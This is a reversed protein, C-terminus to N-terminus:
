FINCQQCSKAQNATNDMFETEQTARVIPIPKSALGGSTPANDYSVEAKIPSAIYEGSQYDALDNNIQEALAAQTKIREKCLVEVKDMSSAFFALSEKFQKFLGLKQKIGDIETNIREMVLESEDFEKTAKTKTTQYGKLLENLKSIAHMNQIYSILTNLAQKNSNKNVEADILAKANMIRDTTRTADSGLTYRLGKLREIFDQGKDRKFAQEEFNSWHFSSEQEGYVAVICWRFIDYLPSKEDSFKTNRLAMPDITGAIKKKIDNLELIKKKTVDINAQADALNKQVIGAKGLADKKENELKMVRLEDPATSYTNDGLTQKNKHSIQELTQNTRNLFEREESIFNQEEKIIKDSLKSLNALRAKGFGILKSLHQGEKTPSLKEPEQLGWGAQGQSSQNNSGFQYTNKASENGNYQSRGVTVGTDIGYEQKQQFGNGTQGNLQRQNQSDSLYQNNMNYTSM